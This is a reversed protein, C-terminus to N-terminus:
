SLLEKRTDNLSIDKLNVITEFAYERCEYPWAHIFNDYSYEDLWNNDTVYDYIEDMYDRVEDTEFYSRSKFWVIIGGTMVGKVDPDSLFDSIGIVGDCNILTLLSNKVEKPLYKLNSM